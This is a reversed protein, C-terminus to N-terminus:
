NIGGAPRASSKRLDLLYAGLKDYIDQGPHEEHLVFYEQSLQELKRAGAEGIQDLQKWREERDPSPAGGPFVSQAAEFLSLIREAGIARLANMMEKWSDGTSNYFYQHLGGNKVELEMEYAFLVTKEIDSLCEISYDNDALKRDIGDVHRFVTQELEEESYDSNM